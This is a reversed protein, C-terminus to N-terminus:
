YGKDRDVRNILPEGKSLRELNMRFLDLLRPYYSGTAASIHPTLTVNRASWLPHGDLLPEPDTVDLAAGSILGNNLADVLDDTQIVEGRSINAVYTRGSKSLLEFEERALLQRTQSTLPTAVVLLDLGSALFAHVDQRSGGSFWKSPLSGDPDGLGRPAYSDDRRSEPTTKPSLTYAYVDMGLAKAVRATQRGISGYGLIGIRKGVVDESIAPNGPKLKWRGEKQAEWYTSMHRNFSLYTLIIWEAIQPGHIGNASCFPVKTNSFFPHSLVHNAGASILQVLRIRPAQEVTPLVTPTLLLTIEKWDEDSFGDGVDNVGWPAVRTIIELDPFQYRIADIPGSPVSVTTLILARHGKLTPNAM